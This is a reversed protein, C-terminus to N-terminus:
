ILQLFQTSHLTGHQHCQQHSAIHAPMASVRLPDLHHALYHPVHRSCRRHGLLEPGSQAPTLAPGAQVAGSPQVPLDSRLDQEGM